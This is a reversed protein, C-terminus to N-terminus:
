FCSSCVDPIEDEQKDKSIKERPDSMTCVSSLYIINVACADAPPPSVSMKCGLFQAYFGFNEQFCYALLEIEIIQNVEQLSLKNAPVVCV